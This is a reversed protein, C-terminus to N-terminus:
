DESSNYELSALIGHAVYFVALRRPRREGAFLGAYSELQSRYREAHAALRAADAEPGLDATKYDIIWRVGDEVFSRDIVRTEATGGAGIKAVALEAGGDARPRLVWQGDASALATALMRAAREAAVRAEALPWGRGALWREFGPRRAAIAGPPWAVPDTAAMELLAHVLTGVDAALSDLSEERAASTAPPPPARWAEPVAPAALRRLRPVFHGPDPGDDAVAPAVTANAAVDAAVLPWLRALLSNAAPTALAGDERRNAVAVLHLRRVARTAAVYLVRAAENASRERELGQLFDYLTPEDARRRRNVPAVLLREGTELPLSDWALLPAEQPPTGRHLGPLIVTDFELGKAKHITMLQLRGDARADPAAFLRTMDDELSDLAFRGAADLADLRKFFAQADGAQSGADLCAPGGLKKWADEIWRRRSQRGQGALAEAMVERLHALRRRGGATLRAVRAPDNLLSWVTAAHDDGALAHLDALTLGCWPARLIALWHLRDGRHHLARTLSILDQVAQREALPEIEVASCRWGAPHRRIAAALAALHSRARVLVAIQRTPDARWEAEILAVVCAAELRGASEADGGGTVLAHVAVGADPLDERTAVFPRYAIEGRIPEDHAPFLPPFGRNIWDVVPACARNNRSLRLPELHLGGLGQAKARLFLGVEAKRFRYISQMPDGVCFLTRGDGQQWGATLRQLLEVQTPSTDQFEDVLLHRIRWDLRLGLETPDMDDGLAAIARAALEGFDVEGAERFVLWLEAAALKMLRALARVIDDNDHEPLPLQRLRALAAVAAEDLGALAALMADKQAKVEKGAPFGNNVNVTKRATDEQTLLFAALARWRPLEAVEASLAGRWAAFLSTAHAGGLNAAAFRALPMWQAQWAADLTQAAAALEEGLMKELAAGIAPEPDDLSAIARWQERRALMAVLLGILREADNNTWALAAAVAAAHEAGAAGDELHELARRAAERYHRSADEVTGPQAGFRSLLPMQRALGACLADITTLRLRGPQTEIRWGRAASRALAARALDFTIRKHPAEPPVGGRARALSEAIRNRMEGAAKNTFTIAVIEEPEDAIALLRLYRQTLLETKGAGAPAEVIFSGPELARRRNIDDEALLDLTM